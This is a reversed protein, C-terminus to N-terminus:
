GAAATAEAAIRRFAEGLEPPEVVTLPVGLLLLWRAVVDYSDAGCRILCSDDGEPEVTGWATAIGRQVRAAPVHARVVVRVRQWREAVRELIWADLDEAPPVRRRAPVESVEIRHGELPLLLWGDADPPRDVDFAVVYWRGVAHVLALPDFRGGGDVSLRLLDRCAEALRGLETASAPEPAVRFADDLDLVRTSETVADAVLRVRRPMADRIKARARVVLRADDVHEWRDLAMSCAIAEDATLAVPPLAAGPEMRYGGDSGRLTDVPYGLDRLRAVDRRVTRETVGLEDALRAATVSEPGQLRDLLEIVRSAADTM